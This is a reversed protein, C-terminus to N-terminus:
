RLKTSNWSNQLSLALNNLKESGKKVLGQPYYRSLIMLGYVAARWNGERMQKGVVRILKEGYDEQASRLGVQLAERYMESRRACQRHRRRVTVASKLMLAYDRSMSEDHRRYEIVLTNSSCVPHLRAIRINLDFDASGSVSPDYGGVSELVTRRYMVAGATWIYNHSLLELYHDDVVARPDPIALPSGDAAILKAHGYVFACEPNAGLSDVWDKLANPLLRDDADLFVVYNGRAAKFGTNRAVALGRNRQKLCRVRDFSAAIRATDDTSGDDVVIIEFYPHTQALVSEIAESLFRAQNYCPIVVTTLCLEKM